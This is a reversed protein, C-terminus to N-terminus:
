KTEKEKKKDKHNPTKNKRTWAYIFSDFFLCFRNFYM